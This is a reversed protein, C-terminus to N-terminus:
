STGLDPSVSGGKEGVNNRNQNRGSKRANALVVVIFVIVTVAAVVATPPTTMRISYLVPPRPPVIDGVGLKGDLGVDVGVKGSVRWGPVGGYFVLVYTVVIANPDM